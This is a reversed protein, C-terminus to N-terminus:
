EFVDPFVKKRKEDHTKQGSEEFVLSSPFGKINNTESNNFKLNNFRFDTQLCLVM